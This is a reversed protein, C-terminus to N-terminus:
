KINYELQVEYGDPNVFPILIIEVKEMIAHVQQLLTISTCSLFTWLKYHNSVNDDEFHNLFYAVLYM